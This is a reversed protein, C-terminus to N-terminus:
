EFAIWRGLFIILTWILISLLGAMRAHRPPPMLIDWEAIRRFETAHFLLMNLGALCLAALKAQFFVSEGYRAADSSFMLVGTIAAVLFAAWTYPLLESIIQSANRRYSGFGILRLDVVFISGVVIAIGLVHISELWPFAIDNERIFMSIESAEIHQLFQDLM